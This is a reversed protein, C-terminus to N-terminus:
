SLEALINESRIGPQLDIVTSYAEDYFILPQAAPVWARWWAAYPALGTLPGDLHLAQLPAASKQSVEIPRMRSAGGGRTVGPAKRDARPPEILSYLRTAQYGLIRLDDTHARYPRDIPHRKRGRM